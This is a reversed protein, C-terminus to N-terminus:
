TRFASIGNVLTFPASMGIRVPIGFGCSMVEAFPRVQRLWSTRCGANHLPLARITWLGFCFDYTRESMIILCFEYFWSTQFLAICRMDTRATARPIVIRENRRETVVVFFRFDRRSARFLAVSSLFAATAFIAYLRFNQFRHSMFEGIRIKDCSALFFPIRKM